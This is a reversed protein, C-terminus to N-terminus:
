CKKKYIFPMSDNKVCLMKFKNLDSEKKVHLNLVRKMNGSETFPSGLYIYSTTNKVTVDNVIFSERDYKSGNIVMFNTKVDNIVMGYEMCFIILVTFKDTM